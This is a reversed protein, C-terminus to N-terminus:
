RCPTPPRRIFPGYPRVTSPSTSAGPGGNPRTGLGMRARAELRGYRPTWGWHAPQFERVTLGERCPQRGRTGGVPGSWVGSQIGSVRLPPEHEGACWLGQDPPISLRLESEAVSYTAASEARSSWMPLYHPLWVGTDLDPGDFDDLFADGPM